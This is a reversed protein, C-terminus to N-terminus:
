ESDVNDTSILSNKIKRVNIAKNKVEEYDFEVLDNENLSKFGRMNIDSYHVFVDEDLGECSIFGFGKADDFWKVKGQM